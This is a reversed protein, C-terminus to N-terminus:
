KTMGISCIKLIHEIGPLYLESIFKVILLYSNM